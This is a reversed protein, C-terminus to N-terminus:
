QYDTFTDAPPAVPWDFNLEGALQRLDLEKQVIATVCRDALTEIQEPTLVNDAHLGAGVVTLIMLWVFSKFEKM